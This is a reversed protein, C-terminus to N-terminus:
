AAYEAYNIGTYQEFKEEKLKGNAVDTAFLAITQDKWTNPVRTIEWMDVKILEYYVKAM